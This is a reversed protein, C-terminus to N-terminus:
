SVLSSLQFGRKLGPDDETDSYGIPVRYIWAYQKLGARRLPFFNAFRPKRYCPPSRRSREFAVRTTSSRIHHTLDMPFCRPGRCSRHWLHANHPLARGMPLSSPLCASLNSPTKYPPELTDLANFDSSLFLALLVGLYKQLFEGSHTSRSALLLVVALWLIIGRRCLAANLASMDASKKRVPDSVSVPTCAPPLPETVAWLSRENVMITSRPIHNGEGNSNPSTRSVRSIAVRSSWRGMNSRVDWMFKVQTRKLTLKYSADYANVRLSRPRM